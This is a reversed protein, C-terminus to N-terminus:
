DLLITGSILVVEGLVNEELVVQTHRQGARLQAVM